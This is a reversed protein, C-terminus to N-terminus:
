ICARFTHRSNSNAVRLTPWWVDNVDTSGKADTQRAVYSIWKWRKCPLKTKKIIQNWKNEKLNNILSTDNVGIKGM